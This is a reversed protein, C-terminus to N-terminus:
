RLCYPCQAGVERALTDHHEEYHQVVEAADWAKVVINGNTRVRSALVFRKPAAEDREERGIIGGSEAAAVGQSDAQSLRESASARQNLSSTLPNQLQAHLDDSVIFQQCLISHGSGAWALAESTVARVQLRLRTLKDIRIDRLASQIPAYLVPTRIHAHSPGVRRVLRRRPM